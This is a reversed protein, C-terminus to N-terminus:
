TGLWRERRAVGAAGADDDFHLFCTTLPAEQLTLSREVLEDDRFLSIWIEDGAEFQALQAALKASAVQFGNIAILHDGPILGAQQAPGGDLLQTLEVGLPRQVYQM